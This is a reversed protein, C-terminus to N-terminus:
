GRQVPVSTTLGRRAVAPKRLERAVFPHPATRMRHLECAHSVLVVEARPRPEKVGGGRSNERSWPASDGRGFSVSLQPTEVIPSGGRDGCRRRGEGPRLRPPLGAGAADRPHKRACRGCADVVRLAFGRRSFRQYATRAVHTPYSAEERSWCGVTSAPNGMRPWKSTQKRGDRPSGGVNRRGAGVVQDGAFVRHRASGDCVGRWGGQAPAGRRRRM